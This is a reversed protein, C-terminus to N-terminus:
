QMNAASKFITRKERDQWTYKTEMKFSVTKGDITYKFDILGPGVLHSRHIAKNDDNLTMAHRLLCTDRYEYIIIRNESDGLTKLILVKESQNWVDYSTMIEITNSIDKIFTFSALRVQDHLGTEVGYTHANRTYIILSLFIPGSIVAIIAICILSEILTFAGKRIHFIKNM